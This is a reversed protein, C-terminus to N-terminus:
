IALTNIAKEKDIRFYCIIAYVGIILLIIWTGIWNYLEFNTPVIFMTFVSGLYLAVSIYQIVKAYAMSACWMAYCNIVSYCIQFVISITLVKLLSIISFINADFMIVGTISSVVYFIISIIVSMVIPLIMKGLIISYMKSPLTFLIELMGM